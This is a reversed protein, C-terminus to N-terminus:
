RGHYEGQIIVNGDGDPRIVTSSRGGYSGPGHGGQYESSQYVEWGPRTRARSHESGSPDNRTDYSDDDVYRRETSRYSDYSHSCACLAFPLIALAIFRKM